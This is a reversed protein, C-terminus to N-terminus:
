SGRTAAIAVAERIGQYPEAKEQLRCSRSYIINGKKKNEALVECCDKPELMGGSTNVKGHYHNHVCALSTGIAIDIKGEAGEM